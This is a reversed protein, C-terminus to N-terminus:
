KIQTTSDVRWLLECIGYALATRRWSCGARIFQESALDPQNPTWARPDASIALVTRPYWFRKAAAWAVGGGVMGVPGIGPRDGVVTDAHSGCRPKGKGEGFPRNPTGPEREADVKAVGGIM